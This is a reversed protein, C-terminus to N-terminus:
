RGPTTPQTPAGSGGRVVNRVANGAGRVLGGAAGAAGIALNPVSRVAVGATVSPWRVQWQVDGYPGHLEVPVTVGNLLVMEPGARGGATNVVRARLLYDVRSAGLDVAGEGAVNLFESRGDLDTSRGIGNRVDFSADLQSFETQRGRDSALTTTSGQPATRWASLTQTLDLGRLAAPRLAFVVRGEMAARVAGVTAGSSRLDADLRGRGRVADTGFTDTLLGRLDVATARLRLGLRGNGADASGSAEFSGGWARGSLRQLDLVGNDIGARLELGDVRYPPRVLRAVKIQVRADAAQLPRLDVPTAAASPTPAADRLTPAVFRTLDLTGFSADVDVFPRPRGLVAAVRAEFRQDNLTGVAQGAGASASLRAHGGLALRLPPLGPDDVRLVLSLAELAAGFPKLELLLTAGARGRLASTGAQGDAEVYLDPLAIHEFSCSPALSGLRMQLRQDGGLTLRGTVPGGQLSDGVVKLAPWELLANLTTADHRGQLQLALAELDLTRGAMDLRLRALGLRGTDVLWGRRAGGFTLTVDDLEVRGDVAGGEFLFTAAQLRADLREFEFGQGQLHLVAGSLRMAPRGAPLPAPLLQLSADLVLNGQLLPRTLTAQANLHLPTPLGPGLRGLSLQRIALRGSVEAPMDAVQLEIDALEICEVTLPTGGRPAEGRAAGDLLDDINRRGEADRRYILQVGRASVQEVEIEQRRLLPELRLTFAAHEIRAFPQRLPGPESLRMGHVAVAPQPWMQLTLPGDFALERGHRTQMWDIAVRKVREGDFSIVLWVAGALLLLVLATLLYM